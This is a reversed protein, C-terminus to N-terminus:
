SLGIIPIARLGHLSFPNCVINVNKGAIQVRLDGGPHDHRAFPSDNNICQQIRFFGTQYLAEDLVAQVRAHAVHNVCMKVGVMCGAGTEELARPDHSMGQAALKEIASSPLAQGFRLLSGPLQAVHPQHQGIHHELAPRQIEVHAVLRKLQPMRRPVARVRNDAQHLLISHQECGIRQHRKGIKHVATVVIEQSRQFPQSVAIKLVDHLSVALDNQAAFDFLLNFTVNLVQTRQALCNIVGKGARRRLLRQFLYVHFAAALTANQQVATHLPKM